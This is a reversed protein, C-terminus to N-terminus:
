RTAADRFLDDLAEDDLDLEVAIALLLPNGREFALASTWYIEAEPGAGAVAAAAAEYKGAALLALKAQAPTVSAPVPQAPAEIEREIFTYNSFDYLRDTPM